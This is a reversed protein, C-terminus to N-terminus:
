NGTLYCCPTYSIQTTPSRKIPWSLGWWSATCTCGVGWQQSSTSFVCLKKTQNFWGWPFQRLHTNENQKGSKETPACTSFPCRVRSPLAWGFKRMRWLSRSRGCSTSMPWTAGTSRTGCSWSVRTPAAPLCGTQPSLLHMCTLQLDVQLGSPADTLAGEKMETTISQSVTSM